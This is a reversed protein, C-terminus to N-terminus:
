KFIGVGKAFTYIILALIALVSACLAILYLADLLIFITLYFRYIIKNRKDLAYTQNYKTLIRYFVIGKNILYLIFHVFNIPDHGSNQGNGDKTDEITQEPTIPPIFYIPEGEGQPKPPQSNPPTDEM